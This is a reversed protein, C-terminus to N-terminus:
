GPGRLACSLVERLDPPVANRGEKAESWGYTDFLVDLDQNVIIHGRWIAKSSYGTRSIQREEVVFEWADQILNSRDVADVKFYTAGAGSGKRTNLERLCRSRLKMALREAKSLGIPM